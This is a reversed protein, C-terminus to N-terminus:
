IDDKRNLYKLNYFFDLFKKIYGENLEPWDFGIKNLYQISFDSKIKIPSSYVIVRNEDFDNIIGSLIDNSYPTNLIRDITKIFTENDVISVKDYFKNLINIFYIIDINKHNLLHFIRNTKCNYQLIKLIANACCDVPTLELYADSLYDPICGIKYYSILRNIYANENVNYQFKGDSLRNMLNGIRLIYGDLGNSINNLVIKEAEFKSRIYVNDLCQNIYFDNENFDVDHDFNQKIYSDDIFSNGSVSLTSIQYFRKNNKLCFDVLNQTGDVNIKKYDSYNGYHSVKAASNIVINIDTALKNLISQSLGLNPSTINAQIPIIRTGVLNDYKDGFYYHLKNLLKQEITLGPEARLLCYIKSKETSLISSLIHAGLFGTVGTLLIDGLPAYKLELPMNTTNKLISDFKTLEHVDIKTLSKKSNSSIYDALDKVTPFMFIDSYSIHINFKLLELQLAMALLSDGGIDFFNDYTSIPSVSLLNEFIKCIKIELNNTPAVFKKNSTIDENPLPLMKKDIKGNPLYPFKNLIIFHTPVMYKPIHKSLYMKLENISIRNKVTIYAVLYQRGKKDTSSSLVVKNINDYRMIWKEIEDLEIRLGRIKVQNDIRGIYDLEGSPLFKVLDGTKYMILNPKFIDQMFSQGTLIPNNLYGKGVGNGSIYLEGPVGVPCLNKNKDLIYVYTNALPKGITVKPSNTVDTFTSFVTTESPGYGNYITIDGLSLLKNRLENPLAEGALTIYKLNSLHPMYEKNNIFIDMRSPTMQIAKIDYKYILDDLLNPNTQQAENAIVVKLGKQLSIITEFLFIDFSITTISAISIYQENRFYDVVNNLYCTLNMLSKHTLVVGKPKGTSGSTYIIYSPNDPNIRTCLNSKDYNYVISNNIDINSTNRFNVGKTANLKLLISANSNELMYEIRENPFNQDIPIYCAGSKLVALFAIMIELSRPLMIGVISNSTVGNEILYRALQNSKENLEKYTLQQNEFIVAINNPTKEVQKEFLDVITEDYPYDITTNNFDYLLQRKELESLMDIDAIKIITNKLITSLINIYHTAFKHIFDASFLKTCYEFRLSLENDIPIIELSLDFKSIHGYPIFYEAQIDEFKIDPYGNNQYIFMFDFLPNRSSDRKINLEKVLENFPYTQNQFALLCYEKLRSVFDSFSEQSNVSQRLALTNVFMGLVNSLVPLDRGVIPTGVVIDDQSTYKSLLIYFASLMLMYPTIKLERSVKNINEFIDKDLNVCYNAGDFSMVSPRAYTTPMNLLPIEDKYQNLWFDRAQSFEEKDFQSKEWVAFDKYDIYKEPLEKENYLDCLEKIFINLSTGDSIIHHMDLLLLSRNDKLIVLKIRFLPAKSLDFSQVFNNFLDEISCDNQKEVILNFDINDEIKQVIEENVIVFSTRLSENRSILTKICSELKSIDPIEDFILGGSINYLLSNADMSSAYYIREQASSLPYYEKKVTKQISLTKTNNILKSSIYDSLDKIIPYDFIDKVSISINYKTSLYTSLSIANLSDGGIDFFSSKISIQKLNLIDSIKEIICNDILNRALVITDEELTPLPLSKRDLKGSITLPLNKVQMIYKPIMYDPLCEAIFSKLNTVNIQEDSVIYSCIAKQDHIELLISVSQKIGNYKLINTDIDELEIRYGRLKIQKDLRTLFVLNGDSLWKVQDGTKYVLGNGFPNKIFKKKTLEDNNIYGKAIGDGGVWLEGPVGIPQM